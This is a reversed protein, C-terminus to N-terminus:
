TTAAVNQQPMTWTMQTGHSRATTVLYGSARLVREVDAATTTRGVIHDTEIALMPHSTALVDGAVELAAVEAGEIDMKIWSPVGYEAFATPLTLVPVAMTRSPSGPLLSEARASELGSGISGDAVFQATGNEGAVAAEVVTVNTLGAATINQRLIVANGPDPEFSVVRGTTGVRHALAISVVGINAGLDYVLDGVQPASFAWYLDEVPIREQMTPILLDLDLPIYHHVKPVSFDVVAQGGVVEPTVAGFFVDFEGAVHPAHVLDNGALRVVRDGRSIDVREHSIDVQCGRGKCARTVISRALRGDPGKRSVYQTMRKRGAMKLHGLARM